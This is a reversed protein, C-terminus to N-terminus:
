HRAAIVSVDAGTDLLGGFWKENLFLNMEPRYKTVQELWYAHNSSGFGGAGWLNHIFVKGKKVNPLIVLQAIKMEPSVAVFASPAQTMMRIEGTYAENIV